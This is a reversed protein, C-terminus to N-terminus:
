HGTKNFVPPRPPTPNQAEARLTQMLKAQDLLTEAAKRMKINLDTTTRSVDKYAHYAVDADMAWPELEVEVRQLVTANKESVKRLAQATRHLQNAINQTPSNENENVKLLNDLAMKELQVTIKQTQQLIRRSEHITALEAHVRKRLTAITSHSHKASNELERTDKVLERIQLGFSTLVEKFRPIWQAIRNRFDDEKKETKRNVYARSLILLVGFLFGFFSVLWLDNTIRSRTGLFGLYGAEVTILVGTADEPTIVKSYELVGSDRDFRHSNTTQANFNTEIRRINLPHPQTGQTLIGVAWGVPDRQSRERANLALSEVQTAVQRALTLSVNLRQANSRFSDLGFTGGTILLSAGLCAAIHIRQNFEM